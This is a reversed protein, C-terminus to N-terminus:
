GYLKPPQLVKVELLEVRVLLPGHHLGDDEDHNEGGHNHKGPHSPIYQSQGNPRRVAPDSM